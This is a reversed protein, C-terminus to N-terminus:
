LLEFRPYDQALLSRVCAEINTAENRAPVLISVLPAPMKSKLNQIKAGPSEAEGSGFDSIWFRFYRRQMLTPLTLLNVVLLGLFALLVSLIIAQYILLLALPSM